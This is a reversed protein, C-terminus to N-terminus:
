NTSHLENMHKMQWSSSWLHMDEQSLVPMPTENPNNARLDETPPASPPPYTSRFLEERFRVLAEQGAFLVDDKAPGVNPDYSDSGCSISLCLFPDRCLEQGTKSALEKLATKYASYIIRSVTERSSSLRHGDVSALCGSEIKSLDVGARLFHWSQSAPATANTSTTRESRACQQM